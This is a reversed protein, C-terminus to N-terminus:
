DKLTIRFYPGVYEISSIDAECFHVSSWSMHFEIDISYWGDEESLCILEGMIKGHPFWVVVEQGILSNM